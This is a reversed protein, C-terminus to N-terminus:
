DQARVAHLWAITKGAMDDPLYYKEGDRGQPVGTTTSNETIV